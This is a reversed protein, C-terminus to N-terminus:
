QERPRPLWMTSPLFRPTLAGPSPPSFYLPTFSAVEVSTIVVEAEQVGLLATGVFRLGAEIGALGQQSGMMFYGPLFIKAVVDAPRLVQYASSTVKTTFFNTFPYNGLAPTGFTYVQPPTGLAPLAPTGGIGQMLDTAAIAALWGGTDHGTLLLSATALGNV